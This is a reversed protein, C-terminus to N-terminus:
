CQNDVTWRTEYPQSFIRISIVGELAILFTGVTKWLASPTFVSEPSHIRSIKKLTQSMWVAEALLLGFILLHKKVTGKSLSNANLLCNEATM